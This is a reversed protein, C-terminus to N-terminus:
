PHPTVRLLKQTATLAASATVKVEPEVGVGEWNTRTIPNIARASPIGIVFHDGLRRGSGPHAGGGTAEGVITARKLSKLNYAFEEAASFTQGSTLVYVPKDPGFRRGPVSDRTWFEVTRGTRRSWLDNLHTRQSFLYSSLYAVMEPSGGGNERLDVILARTGALFTMAASATAGCLAPPGFMDFKVYGVNSALREARVFGCNVDDMWARERQEESVPPASPAPLPPPPPQLHEVIYEMRLHKDGTLDRLDESVRMAFSMGNGHADYAGRTLRARLSDGVRKAVDPFVYHTDLRTVAAAIVRARTASDIRMASPSIGPGMTRLPFATVQVPEVNSVALLGYTTVTSGRARLTFEVRRPESREITLLDYRKVSDRAVPEFGAPLGPQYRRYYATARATDASNNAELWARLVRGASTNPFAPTRPAQAGLPAGSLVFALIFKAATTM